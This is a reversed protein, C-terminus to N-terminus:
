KADRNRIQEERNKIATKKQSYETDSVKDLFRQKALHGDKRNKELDEKIGKEKTYKEWDMETKQLCNVKKDLNDINSVLQDFGDSEKAERQKIKEERKVDKATKEREIEYSGGAFTVKEKVTNGNNKSKMARIALLAQAAADDISSSEDIKKVKRKEKEREVKEEEVEKARKIRRKDEDEKVGGIGDERKQQTQEEAKMMEWIDDVEKSQKKDRLAQMTDAAEQTSSNTTNRHLSNKSRKQSNKAKEEAPIYDEDEEDSDFKQNLIDM